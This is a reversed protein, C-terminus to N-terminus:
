QRAKRDSVKRSINTVSDIDRVAREEKTGSPRGVPYYDRSGSRQRFEETSNQISREVYEDLKENGTPKSAM